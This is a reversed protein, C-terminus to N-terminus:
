SDPLKVWSEQSHCFRMESQSLCFPSQNALSIPFSLFAVPKLCPQFGLKAHPIMLVRGKERNSLM